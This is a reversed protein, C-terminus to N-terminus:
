ERIPEISKLEKFKKFIDEGPRIYLHKWVLDELCVFPYKDKLKRGTLKVRRNITTQPLEDSLVLIIFKFNCLRGIFDTGRSNKIMLSGIDTLISEIFFMNKSKLFFNTLDLYILHMPKRSTIVKEVLEFFYRNTYTGTLHDITEKYSFANLSRYTSLVGASLARVETEIDLYMLKQPKCRYSKKSLLYRIYIKMHSEVLSALLDERDERVKKGSKLLKRIRGKTDDWFHDIWKRTSASLKEDREELEILMSFFFPNRELFSLILRIIMELKFAIDGKDSILIEVEKSYSVLDKKIIKVLLEEKSNYHRYFMGTSIDCKKTINSIKTKFYGLEYFLKRSHYLIIDEM